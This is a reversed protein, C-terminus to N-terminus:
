KELLDEVKCNIGLFLTRYEWPELGQERYTHMSVTSLIVAFIVMQLCMKQAFQM